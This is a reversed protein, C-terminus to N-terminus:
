LSRQETNTKFIARGTIQRKPDLHGTVFPKQNLVEKAKNCKLTFSTSRFIFYSFLSSFSLQNIAFERHPLSKLMLDM